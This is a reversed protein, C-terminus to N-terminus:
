GNQDEEKPDDASAGQAKPGDPLDGTYLPESFHRSCWKERDGGMNPMLTLESLPVEAGCEDCVGLDKKGKSSREERWILGMLLAFVSACAIAVVWPWLTHELSGM